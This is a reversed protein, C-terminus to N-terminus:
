LHGPFDRHIGSGQRVFLEAVPSPGNTESGSVSTDVEDEKDEGQAKSEEDSHSSSALSVRPIQKEVERPQNCLDKMVKVKYSKGEVEVIIGENIEKFINTAILIKAEAFPSMKMTSEDTAIFSGWLEGISKFSINSWVGFDMAHFSLRFWVAIVLTGTLSPRGRNVETYDIASRMYDYTDLKVAEKVLGVAFSLPNKVLEGAACVSSTM